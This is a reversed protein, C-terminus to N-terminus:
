GRTRRRAWGGVSLLGAAMLAWTGPEPVQPVNAFELTISMRADDGLGITDGLQTYTNINGDVALLASGAAFSGARGYVARVVSTAWQESGNVVLAVENINFCLYPVGCNGDITVYSGSANLTGDADSLYIDYNEDGAFHGFDRSSGNLSAGALVSSLRSDGAAFFDREHPLQYTSEYVGVGQFGVIDTIGARAPLSAVALLCALAFVSSRRM